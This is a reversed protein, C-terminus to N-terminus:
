APRDILVWCALLSYLSKIGEQHCVFSLIKQLSLMLQYLRSASVSRGNNIRKQLAERFDKIVSQEKLLTMSPKKYGLLFLM